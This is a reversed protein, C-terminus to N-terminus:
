ADALQLPDAQPGGERVGGLVLGVGVGELVAELYGWIMYASGFAFSGVSYASMSLRYISDFPM